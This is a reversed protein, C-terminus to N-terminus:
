VRRVKREPRAPPVPRDKPGPIGQIGQPGAPGNLVIELEPGNATLLSEKSDFSFLGNTATLALAVGNNAITGSVWGQVLPTIDILLFKNLSSSTIAIPKNGSASSGLAPPPTNYTLANESWAGNVPFVDFSGSTLVADVYLRLTAKNVSAGAPLTSLNFQIFTTAGAQVVLIPSAGYNAKPTVSSVFTDASPPAQAQTTASFMTVALVAIVAFYFYRPVFSEEIGHIQKPPLTNLRLLASTEGLVSFRIGDPIRIQVYPRQVQTLILYASSNRM